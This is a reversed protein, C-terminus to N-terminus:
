SVGVALAVIVSAALAALLIPVSWRALQRGGIWASLAAKAATNAFAALLIGRAAVAAPVESGAAQALSLSVADVDALGQGAM